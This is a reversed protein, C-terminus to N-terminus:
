RQSSASLRSLFSINEKVIGTIYVPFNNGNEDHFGISMPLYYIPIPINAPQQRELIDPQGNATDTTKEPVTPKMVNRLRIADKETTLIIKDPSKISEFRQMILNTDKSTFNHHDPFPLHDVKVGRQKLEDLLPSPNAIGTVCLIHRVDHLTVPEADFLPEPEGYNIYSFFLKQYSQVKLRDAIMHKELLNIKKPSKTVIIVNARHSESRSERLDGFPLIHDDSYLRGYETLLINITPKVYRHQYVDDLIVLQPPKESALLRDIAEMRRKCVAASVDPHKSVLMATEDGLNAVTAQRDDDSQLAGGEYLVCGTSNRKYGRSVMATAYKDGFLGLLYDTMPTKGSGGAVLNGIGITTVPPISQKLVGLEFLLNRFVTGIAYWMTFPWLVWSITKRPSM